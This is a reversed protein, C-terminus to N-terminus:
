PAKQVKLVKNWEIYGKVALIGYILFLFASPYLSKYIMAGCSIANIVIWFLWQEIFKQTLMWTAVIGGSTLLADTFAMDSDTYNKLVLFVPLTFIFIIAICVVLWRLPTKGIKVAAANTDSGRSWNYWGYIGIVVYYIYLMAYAYIDSKIFIWVYLASSIIGFLWLLNKEKITFIVYLIGTIVAIIEILHQQLWSLVISVTPM